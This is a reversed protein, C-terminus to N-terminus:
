DDEVVFAPYHEQWWRAIDVRRAIWVDGLQEIGDLIEELAGIRGPQGILRPHLGISLMRPHTAGEEWLALAARRCLEVFDGPAGYSPASVFRGDNYTHSYPLVLHQRGDVEVHYPLDDNYADSDYLFGGEEVLLSRTHMSPGYRYCWGLPREGCLREVIAIAAHMHEREQQRTLRWPEEWRLGHCCVEHGQEVFARAVAPNRELAVACAFVTIPVARRELLRLVRWVGARSGYEFVSEASLDRIAAPAEYRLETIRENRDDGDHVSYESGEEYNLVISLALRAGGPWRVRPIASGYGIFDREPEHTV